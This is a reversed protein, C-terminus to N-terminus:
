HVPVAAEELGHMFDDFRRDDGTQHDLVLHLFFPMERQFLGLDRREVTAALKDLFRRILTHTEEHRDAEPYGTQTMLDRERAFHGALDRDLRHLADLIAADLTGDQSHEYLWGLQDLILRYGESLTHLNVSGM